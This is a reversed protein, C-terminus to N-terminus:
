EHLASVHATRNVEREWAMALVDLPFEVDEESDEHFAPDIDLLVRLRDFNAERAAPM